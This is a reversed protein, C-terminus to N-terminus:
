GAPPSGGSPIGDTPDPVTWGHLRLDIVSDDGGYENPAYSDAEHDNMWEAEDLLYKFRYSRGPELGVTVVLRDGDPVMPHAEPNWGNFEGVLSASRSPLDSPIQFRVEVVGDHERTSYPM